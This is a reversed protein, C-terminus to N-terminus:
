LDQCSILAKASCIISPIQPNYRDVSQKFSKCTLRLNLLDQPEFCKVDQQFVIVLIRNPDILWDIRKSDVREKTFSQLALDRQRLEAVLEVCEHKLEEMQKDMLKQVLFSPLINGLKSIASMHYDSSAPAI